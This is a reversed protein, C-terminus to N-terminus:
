RIELAEIEAPSRRRFRRAFADYESVADYWGGNSLRHDCCPGIRLVRGGAEMHPAELPDEEPVVFLVRLLLFMGSARGWDALKMECYAWSYASIVNRREQEPARALALAAAKLRRYEAPGLPKGKGYRNRSWDPLLEGLEKATPIRQGDAM